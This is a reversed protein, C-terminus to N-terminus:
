SGLIKAKPAFTVPAIVKLASVPYLLIIINYTTDFAEAVCEHPDGNRDSVVLNTPRTMKRGHPIIPWLPHSSTVYEDAPVGFQNRYSPSAEMRRVEARMGHGKTIELQELVVVLCARENTRAFERASAYISAGFKKALKIPTKIEFSSDAAHEAFADGKFLAFRAFNNAEREFQDAIEPSLTKSCDQFFRFTKRHTPMDHHGVEHLTLFTQKSGVVSDDIHIISEAADCLGFVKEVASKIRDGAGSAKGKLYSMIAVPDFASTPAIQVNAADLIDDLPVPFRDWADAENMLRRARSEVAQLDEPTLTSDDPKTM